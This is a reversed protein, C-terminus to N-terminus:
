VMDFVYLFSVPHAELRLIIIFCFSSRQISDDCIMTVSKLRDLIELLNEPNHRFDEVPSQSQDELSPPVPGLALLRTYAPKCYETLVTKYSRSYVGKVVTTASLHENNLSRTSM